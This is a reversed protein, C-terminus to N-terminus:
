AAARVKRRKANKATEFNNNAGREALITAQVPDFIVYSDAPHGRGEIEDNEYVLGDYGLSQFIAIFSHGTMM